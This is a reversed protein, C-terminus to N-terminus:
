RRSSRSPIGPAHGVEVRQQFLAPARHVRLLALLDVVAHLDHDELVHRVEPEERGIRDVEGLGRHLSEALMRGREEIAEFSDPEVLCSAVLPYLSFPSPKPSGEWPEELM